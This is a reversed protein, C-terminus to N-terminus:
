HQFEIEEFGPLLISGGNIGVALIGFGLDGFDVALKGGKFAGQVGEKLALGVAAITSLLRIPTRSM